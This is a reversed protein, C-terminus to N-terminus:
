AAPREIGMREITKISYRWVPMTDINWNAAAWSTSRGPAFAPCHFAKITLELSAARFPANLISPDALVM